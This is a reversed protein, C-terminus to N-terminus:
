SDVLANVIDIHSVVAQVADEDLVYSLQVHVAGLMTNEARAKDRDWVEVM